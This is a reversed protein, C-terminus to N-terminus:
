AACPVSVFYPLAYHVSICIYVCPQREAYNIGAGRTVPNAYHILRQTVLRVTGPDIGPPSMGGESRVM